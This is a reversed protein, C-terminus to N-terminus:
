TRSEIRAVSSALVRELCEAIDRMRLPKRLVERVGSSRARSVVRADSFGSMLVIPLDPRVRRIEDALATGSLEPMAEDTLVVDFRDPDARLTRLAAVSSDFGVPEYGAEALMEEAVGVLAPEDDVIMIVEGGGRPLADDIAADPAAATGASPLWIAFTTGHGLMTAVDIAGGVDSVIGHVLSLGLGTGEGVGKTTFFPDFMRDLVEPAIGTGADRVALRVYAGPPLEGHSLSPAERAEVRELTVDLVGGDPMAQVANACLNMVVQHLQTADGVVAADGSDLKKRLAVGKPLSAAFLELTEGVVSAVNVPAHEGVGSRSFALIREVLAKARGGAQMVNDVYRRIASGEPANRQAMEGYGLIAGLINNFDHAIGGALTGMAELKQSKRLQVELRAQESEAAKRATVDIASGVFRYPKGQADRLCRGRVLLWHWAQDPHRVRYEVEYRETRGAMHNALASEMRPVDDPHMNASALFEARTQPPGVEDMGFLTRMKPSVFSAGGELNWDFHGENAGEMALAYRQESERLAQEGADIRRLQRVLAAIALAGLASLLLTRTAVRLAENRWPALVVADRRGVTLVLPFGHVRAGAVFRQAGDIPTALWMAGDGPAAGEVALAPFSKGIQDPVPPERLVLTGNDHLLVIASQTGLNIAHYFRQFEDLDIIGAVVGAFNGTADTLRRSLVIVHDNRAKTTLPESVFLGTTPSDRQAIFYSRESVDDIGPARPSRSRYQQIGQADAITLVMLQPLGEARTALTADILWPRTTAGGRAYWDATDRLLVDIAQLSGEMQEALIGAVNALERRTDAISQRYARWADYASACANAVIAFVGVIV